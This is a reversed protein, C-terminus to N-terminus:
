GKKFNQREGFIQTGVRVFTAGYEIALEFDQSMGMSLTKADPFSAQLDILLEQMTAFDQRLVAESQNAKPIIMLGDFSLRPSADILGALEFVDEEKAGAKQEECALNVQILCKLPVLKEPRQDNLRQIVKARDITHVWDFYEAIQRTKNSQIPGIYHWEIDSPLHPIKQVAEALYNEGFRKLGSDYASKITEVSQTKSAGILAVDDVNRQANKAAKFMRDILRNINANLDPM